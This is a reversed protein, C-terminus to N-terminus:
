RESDSEISHTCCSSPAFTECPRDDRVTWVRRACRSCAGVSMGLEAGDTADEAIGPDGTCCSARACERCACLRAKSISAGPRYSPDPRAGGERGNLPAGCALVGLAGVSVLRRYAPSVM